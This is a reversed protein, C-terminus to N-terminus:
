IRYKSWDAVTGQLAWFETIECAYVLKGISSETLKSQWYGRKGDAIHIDNNREKETRLVHTAIESKKM